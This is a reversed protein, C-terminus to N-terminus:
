GKKLLTEQNESECGGTTFKTLCQNSSQWGRGKRWIAVQFSSLHANTHTVCVTHTHTHTPPPDTMPQFNSSTDSFRVQSGRGEGGVVGGGGWEPFIRQQFSNLKRCCPRVQGGGGGLGTLVKASKFLFYSDPFYLFMIYSVRWQPVLVDWSTLVTRWTIIAAHTILATRTTHAAKLQM